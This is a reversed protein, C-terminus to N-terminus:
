PCRGSEAALQQAIERPDAAGAEPLAGRDENGLMASWHSRREDMTFGGGSAEKDAKYRGFGGSTAACSVWCGTKCRALLRRRERLFPM